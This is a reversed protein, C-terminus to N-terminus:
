GKSALISTTICVKYPESVNADDTLLSLGKGDKWGSIHGGHITGLRGAIHREYCAQAIWKGRPQSHNGHIIRKLEPVCLWESLRREVTGCLM